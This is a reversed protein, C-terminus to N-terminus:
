PHPFVFFIDNIDLLRNYNMGEQSSVYIDGQYPMNSSSKGKGLLSINIEQLTVNRIHIKHTKGNCTLWKSSTIPVVMRTMAQEAHEREQHQGGGGM